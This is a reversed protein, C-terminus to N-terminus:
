ICRLNAEDMHPCRWNTFHHPSSHILETDSESGKAQTITSKFTLLVLWIGEM